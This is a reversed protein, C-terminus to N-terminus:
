EEDSLKAAGSMLSGLADARNALGYNRFAQWLGFLGIAGCFLTNGLYKSKENNFEKALNLMENKTM